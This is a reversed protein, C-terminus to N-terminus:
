LKTKTKTHLKSTTEDKKAGWIAWVERQTLPNSGLLPTEDSNGWFAGQIGDLFNLVGQNRENILNSLLSDKNIGTQGVHEAHM